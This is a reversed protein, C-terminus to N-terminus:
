RKRRGPTLVARVLRGPASARLDTRSWGLLIIYVAFSVAIVSAVVLKFGSDFVASPARAVGAEVIAAIVLLPIAGSVLLLGEKGCRALEDSRSWPRAHITGQALVFGAAGGILMAPIEVVGHPLIGTCFPLLANARVFAAMLVGTILGNYWMLWASGVGWTIGLAFAILTVKTNNTFLYSSFQVLDGGNMAETHEPSDPQITPFNAPMLYSQAAEVDYWAALFGFLTGSAFLATALLFHFIYRRFVAPYGWVFHRVVKWLSPRANGYIVAYSRAVLGNLYEVVADGRVFTQAQNLDSATGRYLQGFEVAQQDDLSALSSGEVRDLVEELRRWGPRRKEIFTALDM